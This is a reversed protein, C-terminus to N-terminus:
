HSSSAFHNRLSNRLKNQNGDFVDILGGSESTVLDNYTRCMRTLPNYFSTNNRYVQLMFTKHPRRPNQKTSFNIHTLLTPSVLKYHILKHLHLIDQTKRRTQLMSVRFRALREEYNVLKRGLGCRFSLIKLAKNQVQEIRNCHVEYYPSWIVCGYELTSRVLTNFLSIFTSPRQFDKTARTIFGLTKYAKLVIHDYHERFTLKKDFYVGLDKTVSKRQLTQGDITYDFHVTSRKNTFSMVFCKDVHLHMCNNKCWDAISIADNQLTVCDDMENINSFVKLDDAYLLCPCKLRSTLDNIFIIFFLPGLHSGQPVGSKIPVPTSKFGKITVLQSRNMLYSQVWRLLNGHIGYWSLKQCLLSHNVKDFAKRFDTYISDVQGRMAFASCLYNKYELLNSVISKGKVFGHQQESLSSKVQNFLHDYVVSEFVKAVCSLLSIPRYNECRSPDGSKYIPVVHALKWCSPFIGTNLSLKFIIHLPVCIQSACEKHFKPPIGDPGAGKNHDLMRLKRLIDHESLTINSLVGDCMQRTATSVLHPSDDFVSGFYQSLLECIAPGDTVTVNGLKMTGPIGKKAKKNNIFSWFAKTNETIADETVSLYARYCKDVLRKCRARLLSFTDYDRPNKYMKYRRHYKNKEALSKKLISSYWCPYTNNNNKNLPIYKFIVGNITSYFVDVAEDVDDTSLINAWDVKELERRITDYDGKNFNFRMNPKPKVTKYKLSNRVMMELPPHYRDERSLPSGETVLIHPTSSLVLDLIRSQYNLIPNVQYLNCLSLYRCLLRSKTDYPNSPTLHFDNNEDVNAASWTLYSVNFDGLIINIDNTSINNITNHLKNYFNTLKNITLHKPLYCACVNIVSDTPGEPIISIWLDEVESEWEHRHVVNYEKKVAILVGGGELKSLLCSERDRRFVNYRSDFLEGDFVSSNLNTETLCICDYNCNLINLYLETTKSRIRNVNQYFVLM